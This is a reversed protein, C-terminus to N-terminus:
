DTRYVVTIRCDANLNNAVDSNNGVISGGDNQKYFALYATNRLGLWTSNTASTWFGGNYTFFAGFVHDVDNTFAYPLGGIYIHSNNETGSNARLYISATVQRGIKIYTGVQVAYGPSSLGQQWVPTFTGEEYDDLLESTMGAANTHGSFDIGSSSPLTINGQVNMGAGVTTYGDDRIGFKSSLSSNYGVFISSGTGDSAGVVTLARTGDVTGANGISGHGAIALTGGTALNGAVTPNNEIKAGTVADDAIDATAIAGDLVASSKITDIAM